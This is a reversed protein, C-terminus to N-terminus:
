KKKSSKAAREARAAKKAEAEAVREKEKSALEALTMRTRAYRGSKGGPGHKVLGLGVLKRLSNRVWSNGKTTPSTGRKPFADRALDEITVLEGIQDEGKPGPFAALVAQQKNNLTYTMVAM